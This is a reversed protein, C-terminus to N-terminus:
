VGLNQQAQRQADEKAKLERALNNLKGEAIRLADTLSVDGRVVSDIMDNFIADTAVIDPRRWTTATLAQQAFVGLFPDGALKAISDRHAPPSNTERNIIESMAPTSMFRVFQWAAEIRPSRASVAFPWYSAFNTVKSDEIQPVPAVAFSLRPNKAVIVPRQYSYNIMMAAKGGAFADISNDQLLNWTYTTKNRNAFDTYFTLVRVGTPNAMSVTLNAPDAITLGSQLMLLQVVDPARNINAAGGLSIATQEFESTRSFRTLTDVMGQLEDWTRPPRAIGASSLLDRNYYLALTDVSVPLAYTTGDRVLDQAVVDVFEDRLTRQDIVGAPAPVLLDRIRDVWTHHIVLVDPGRGRALAELLMREYHAVDGIKEYSVKLGTQEEFAKIVPELAKSEHWLGWMVIPPQDGSTQSVDRCGLGTLTFVSLVGFVLWAAWSSFAKSM